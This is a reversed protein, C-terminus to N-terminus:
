AGLMGDRADARGDGALVVNAFPEGAAYRRLQDRVMALARPRFARSVGGVHPSILVGPTSWLPHEPPLPEPDTVDLAARLRGSSTQAVLADTDVVAGRAMNVLLAGDPMAALFAADALRTTAATLPVMLVVIDHDPLLAALEDLGHVRAVFEDGGRARSAVATLQVEFPALRAAIARGIRGYGVVLVRTDALGPRIRQDLWQGRAQALVFDPIGRQAALILGLALEATATDHVGGANAIAVGPPQHALANDYGATLLQVLRLGPLGVAYRLISPDTLYPAVVLGVEDGDALTLTDRLDASLDWAHLRVPGGGAGPGAADGLVGVEELGGSGALDRVWGADPVTAYRM